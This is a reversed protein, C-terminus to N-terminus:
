AFFRRGAARFICRARQAMRTFDERIRELGPFAQDAVNDFVNYLGDRIPQGLSLSEVMRQTRSGDSYHEPSLSSYLRATKTGLEQPLNPCLVVYSSEPATPIATLVEGRGSGLATGGELFFSVDSGISAAIERLEDAECGLHHMENLAMLTAAANSSGGGLGMSYPIAKELHISAPTPKGTAWSLITAAKLVLNDEGSLDPDSCHLELTESPEFRITDFLDVAQFVTRIEHYGDCRKGLVELSLNLKAPAKVEVISWGQLM